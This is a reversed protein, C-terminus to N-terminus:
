TTSPTPRRRYGGTPGIIQPGGTPVGPLRGRGPVSGRRTSDEQDALAFLEDIRRKVASYEAQSINGQSSRINLEAMMRRAQSRYDSGQNAQIQQNADRQISSTQANQQEMPMIAPQTGATRGEAAKAYLADAQKILAISEPTQRGAQRQIDNARAILQRAQASYDPPGQMVTPEPVDPTAAVQPAPRTENVLDATSSGTAPPTTGHKPLLFPTVLAGGLAAAGAATRKWFDGSDEAANATRAMGPQPGDAEPMQRPPGDPPLPRADPLGTRRPSRLPIPDSLREFPVDIVDDMPRLAREGLVSLGRQGPDPLGRLPAPVLGRPSNDPLGRLPAPIMGTPGPTPVGPGRVGGVPVGPLLERVADGDPDVARQKPASKRPRGRRAGEAKNVAKSYAEMIEEPSASDIRAAFEPDLEQLVARINGDSRLGTATNGAVREELSVPSRTAPKKSGAQLQDIYRQLDAVSMNEVGPISRLFSDIQDVDMDRVNASAWDMLKAFNAAKGKAM